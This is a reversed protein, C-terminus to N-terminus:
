LSPSGLGPTHHVLYLYLGGLGQQVPPELDDERRWPGQPYEALFGYSIPHFPRDAAVHETDGPKEAPHIDVYLPQHGTIDARQHLIDVLM